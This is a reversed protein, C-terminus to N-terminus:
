REKAFTAWVVKGVRGEFVIHESGWTDSLREVIALGRGHTDVDTARMASPLRMSEDFVEVRIAGDVDSAVARVAGFTHRVANTVLESVVLRVDDRLAPAIDHEDLWVTVGDRLDRVARADHITTDLVVRVGFTTPRTAFTM